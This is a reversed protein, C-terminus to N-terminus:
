RFGTPMGRREGHKSFAKGMGGEKIKIMTLINPLSYPKHLAGNRLKRWTGMIDYMKPGFIRGLVRNDFMGLEHEERL